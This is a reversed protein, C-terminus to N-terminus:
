HSILELLEDVIEDPTRGSTALQRFRGYGEAREALLVKIRGAPDDGLMPRKLGDSAQQETVRALIEDSTATLCIVDGTTSLEAANQGDLMMRGGTSIVLDSRQALEAAVQRELDRFAEEGQEAFIEPIPGHRDEIIEDTDVFVRGLREAALRGITSKGTAM